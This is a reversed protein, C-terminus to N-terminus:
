WSAECIDKDELRLAVYAGYNWGSGSGARLEYGLILDGHGDTFVFNLVKRDEYRDDYEIEVCDKLTLSEKNVDDPIISVEDCEAYGCCGGNDEDIKIAEVIEKYTKGILDQHVKTTLM